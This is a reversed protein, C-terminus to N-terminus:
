VRHGTRHRVAPEQIGTRRGRHHDRLRTAGPGAPIKANVEDLRAVAAGPPICFGKNMTLARRWEAEWEVRIKDRGRAHMAAHETQTLGTGGNVAIDLLYDKIAEALASEYPGDYFVFASDPPTLDGTPRVGDFVPAAISGPADPITIEALTPKVPATYDPPPITAPTNIPPADGPDAPMSYAPAEPIELLLPTVTFDPVEPLDPAPVDALSPELPQTVEALSLEEDSPRDPQYSQLTALADMISDSIDDWDSYYKPETFGTLTAALQGMYSQCTAWANNTYAAVENFRGNVLDSAGGEAELAPFDEQGPIWMSEARSTM